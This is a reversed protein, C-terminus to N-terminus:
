GHHTGVPLTAAVRWGPRAPGATLTGGLATIRERMGTLGAHEAAPATVTGDDHVDVLLDDGARRVSVTLTGGDSHRLANTVAEQVLRFATASVGDPVAGPRVDLHVTFGATRATGALATVDALTPRLERVTARLEDLARSVAASVHDLAAATAAPSRHAEQRAVNAHVAAVTLTHGISDHLDRSLEQRHEHLRRDAALAIQAGTLADIRRRARVLEGLAVAAGMLAVHGVADYLVVYRFSQGTALRYGISGALVAVAVAVATRRHGAEAASYLAAAVPVAVGLAPFGAAYYAFLGTATLLLVTRAYRRRWLMLVGLAAAGAYAGPGTDGEAAQGAAAVVVLAAAVGIAPAVDARWGLRAAM